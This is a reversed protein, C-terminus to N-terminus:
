WEVWEEMEVFYDYKEDKYSPWEMTDGKYVVRRDCSTGNLVFAAHGDDCEGFGKAEDGM